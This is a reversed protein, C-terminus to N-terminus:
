TYLAHSESADLTLLRPQSMHHGQAFRETKSELDTVCSFHNQQRRQGEEEKKVNDEDLDGLDGETSSPLLQSLLCSRVSAMDRAWGAEEVIREM